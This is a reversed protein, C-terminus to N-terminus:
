TVFLRTRRIAVDRLKRQRRSPSQPAPKLSQQESVKPAAPSITVIKMEGSEQERFWVQGCGIMAGQDNDFLCTASQVSIAHTVDPTMITAYEHILEERSPIESRGSKGVFFRIDSWLPGEKRSEKQCCRATRCSFSKCSIRICAGMSAGGYQPRLGAYAGCVLGSSPFARGVFAFM